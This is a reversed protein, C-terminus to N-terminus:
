RHLNFVGEHDVFVCRHWPLCRLTFVANLDYVGGEAAILLVSVVIDSLCM